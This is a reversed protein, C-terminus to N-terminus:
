KRRPLRRRGCKRCNNIDDPNRLGCVYCIWGPLDPEPTARVKKNYVVTNSKSRENNSRKIIM